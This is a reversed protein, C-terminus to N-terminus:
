EPYRMHHLAEGFSQAFKTLNWALALPKDRGRVTSVAEPVSM